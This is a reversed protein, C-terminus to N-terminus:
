PKAEAGGLVEGLAGGLAEDLADGLAGVHELWGHTLIRAALCFSAHAGLHGDLM